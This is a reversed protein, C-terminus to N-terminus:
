RVTLCVHAREQGIPGDARIQKEDCNGHHQPDEIATAAHEERRRGGEAHELLKGGDPQDRQGDAERHQDALDVQGHGAHHAQRTADGHQGPRVVRCQAHRQRHEEAQSPAQKLARDHHPQAEAGDAHGQAPQQREAPQSVDDGSVQRDAIRPHIDGEGHVLRHQVDKRQATQNREGGEEHGREEHRARPDAAVNIRRAAIAPGRHNGANVGGRDNGGYERARSHQGREGARKQAVAQRRSRAHRKGIHQHRRNRRRDDAAYRQHSAPARRDADDAAHQHKTEQARTEVGDACRGRHM